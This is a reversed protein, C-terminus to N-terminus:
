AIPGGQADFPFDNRSDAADENQSDDDDASGESYNSPPHGLGAEPLNIKRRTAHLPARRIRIQKWKLFQRRREKSSWRGDGTHRRNNLIILM